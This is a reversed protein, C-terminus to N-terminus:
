KILQIPYVASEAGATVRVFYMGTSLRGGNFVVAHVGASQWDDVLTEQQRGLIDYVEVTVDRAEPLEYQIQTQNHFPNPASGHVRFREPTTELAVPAGTKLDIIGGPAFSGSPAQLAIEGDGGAATRRFKVRLIEGRSGFAPGETRRRTIGVGLLGTV